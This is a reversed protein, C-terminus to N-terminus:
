KLRYTFTLIFNCQYWHFYFPFPLSRAITISQETVFIINTYFFAGASVATNTHPRCFGSNSPHLKRYSFGFLQIFSLPLQLLKQFVPVCSLVESCIDSKDKLLLGSLADSWLDPGQFFLSYVVCDIM